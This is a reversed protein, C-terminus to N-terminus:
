LTMFGRIVSVKSRLDIRGLKVQVGLPKSPTLGSLCVSHCKTTYFSYTYVVLHLHVMHLKIMASETYLRDQVDLYGQIGEAKMYNCINIAESIEKIAEHPLGEQFLAVGEALLM